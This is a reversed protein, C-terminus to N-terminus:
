RGTGSHDRRSLKAPGRTCARATRPHSMGAEQRPPKRARVLQTRSPGLGRLLTHSPRGGGASQHGEPVPRPTLAIKKLLHHTRRLRGRPSGDRGPILTEHRRRDQVLPPVPCRSPFDCAIPRPTECELCSQGSHSDRAVMELRRKLAGQDSRDRAAQGPHVAQRPPHSALSHCKPRDPPPAYVMRHEPQAPGPHLTQGPWGYLAM